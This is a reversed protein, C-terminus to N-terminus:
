LPAWRKNSLMAEGHCGSGGVGGMEERGGKSMLSVCVCAYVFMSVGCFCVYLWSFCFAAKRVCSDLTIVNPFFLHHRAAYIFCMLDELEEAHEAILTLHSLHSNKNYKLMLSKLVLRGTTEKLLENSVM